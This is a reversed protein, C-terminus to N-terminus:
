RKAAERAYCADIEAQAPSHPLAEYTLVGRQGADIQGFRRAAMQAFEARSVARDIDLDASAVPEPINLSAWEGAGYSTQYGARRRADRKAERAAKGRKPEAFSGMKYLRIEPAVDIEYASVEQPDLMGDHDHDISSFFSQADAILEAPTVRGDHDADAQAFWRRMPDATGNTRFPEGMPAVYLPAYRPGCVGFLRGTVVIDDGSAPPPAVAQLALALWIM